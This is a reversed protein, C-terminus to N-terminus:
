YTVVLVPIQGNVLCLNDDYLYVCMKFKLSLIVIVHNKIRGVCIGIARSSDLAVSPCYVHRNSQFIM